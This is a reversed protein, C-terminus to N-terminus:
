AWIPDLKKLFIDDKEFLFGHPLLKKRGLKTIAQFTKECQGYTWQRVRTAIEM